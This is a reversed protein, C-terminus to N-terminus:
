HGHRLDYQSPGWQRRWHVHLDPLVVAVAGTGLRRVVTDSGGM